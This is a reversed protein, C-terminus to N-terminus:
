QSTGMVQADQLFPLEEVLWARPTCGAMSRWESTLHAQDAYGCRQAVGALGGPPLERLLEAARGVRVVRAARKPGFGVEAALEGLHGLGRATARPSLRFGTPEVRTRVSM